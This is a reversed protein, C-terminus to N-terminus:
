IQIKLIIDQSFAFKLEPGVQVLPKKAGLHAIFQMEHTKRLGSGPLVLHGGLKMRAPLM